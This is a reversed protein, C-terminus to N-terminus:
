CDVDMIMFFLVDEEVEVVGIVAVVLVVVVAGFLVPVFVVCMCDVTVVESSDVGTVTEVEATGEGDEVVAVVVVVDVLGIVTDVDGVM